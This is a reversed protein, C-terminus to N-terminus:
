SARWRVYRRVGFDQDHGDRAKERAIDLGREFTECAPCYTEGVEWDNPKSDATETHPHGCPGLSLLYEEYAEAM